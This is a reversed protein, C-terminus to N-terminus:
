LQFCAWAEGVPHAGLLYRAVLTSVMSLVCKSKCELGFDIWVRELALSNGKLFCLCTQQDPGVWCGKWVHVLNSESFGFPWITKHILQLCLVPNWRLTSILSQHLNASVCFCPWRLARPLRPGTGLSCTNVHFFSGVGRLQLCSRRLPTSTSFGGWSLETWGQVGFRWTRHPTGYCLFGFVYM